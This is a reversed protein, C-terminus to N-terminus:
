LQETLEPDVLAPLRQDDALELQKTREFESELMSIAFPRESPFRKMVARLLGAGELTRGLEFCLGVAERVLGFERPNQAIAEKLRALARDLQGKARDQEVKKRIKELDSGM